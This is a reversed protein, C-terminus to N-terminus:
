IEIGNLRMEEEEDLYESPQMVTGVAPQCKPLVHPNEVLVGVNAAYEEHQDTLLVSLVGRCNVGVLM